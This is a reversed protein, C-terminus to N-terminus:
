AKTKNPIITYVWELRTSKCTKTAFRATRDTTTTSTFSSQFYFKLAMKPPLISSNRSRLPLLFLAQAVDADASRTIKNLWGAFRDPHELKPLNVYAKLFAEQAIDKADEFDKLIHVALSYVASKYKTVLQSFATKDGQLTREVLIRDDKHEMKIGGSIM